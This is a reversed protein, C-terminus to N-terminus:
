DDRKDGATNLKTILVPGKAGAYDIASCFPYNHISDKLMALQPSYYGLEVRAGTILQVLLYNSFPSTEILHMLPRGTDTLEDDDVDDEGGMELRYENFDNKEQRTEIAERVKKNLNHVLEGLINEQEDKTLEGEMDLVLHVMRGTILYGVIYLRTFFFSYQPENREVHYKVPKEYVCYNLAKAIVLKYEEERFLKKWEGIKLSLRPMRLAPFEDDKVHKKM